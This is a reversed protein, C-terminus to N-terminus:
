KIRRVGIVISCVIFTVLLLCVLVLLRGTM